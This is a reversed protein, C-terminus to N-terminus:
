ANREIGYIILTVDESEDNYFAAHWVKGENSEPYSQIPYVKHLTNDQAKFGISVILHGHRAEITKTATGKAPVILTIIVLNLCSNELESTEM